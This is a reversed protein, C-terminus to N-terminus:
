IMHALDSFSQQAEILDKALFGLLLFTLFIIFLFVLIFKVSTKDLM